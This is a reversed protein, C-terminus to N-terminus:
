FVRNKIRFLEQYFSICKSEEKKEFNMICLNDNYCFQLDVDIIVYEGCM